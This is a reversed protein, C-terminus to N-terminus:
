TLYRTFAEWLYEAAQAPALPERERGMFAMGMAKFFIDIGDDDVHLSENYSGDHDIQAQGHSFRIERGTGALWIKCRTRSKGDVYIEATFKTADVPSFRCQVHPAQDGEAQKLAAEFYRTIDGFGDAAFQDREADGIKRKIRPITASSQPAVVSQQHAPVPPSITEHAWHLAFLDSEGAGKALQRRGIGTGAINRVHERRLQAFYHDSCWVQNPDVVPEIRAARDIGSSTVDVISGAEEVLTVKQLDVCIRIAVPDPFDNRQWDTTRFRDKVSLAAEAMETADVGCIFFGDGTHKAILIQFRGKIEELLRHIM